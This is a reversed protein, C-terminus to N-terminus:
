TIDSSAPKLLENRFKKFIVEIEGNNESEIYKISIAKQSKRQMTM